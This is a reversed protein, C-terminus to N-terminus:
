HRGRYFLAVTTVLVFWLTAGILWWRSDNVLLFIVVLAVSPVYFLSLQLFAIMTRFLVSVLSSLYELIATIANVLNEYIRELISLIGELLASIGGAVRRRMKNLADILDEFFRLLNDLVTTNEGNLPMGASHGGIASSVGPPIDIRQGCTIHRKGSWRRQDRITFKLGCGPCRLWGDRGLTAQAPPHDVPFYREVHGSTGSGNCSPCVISGSKGTTSCRSCNALVLPNHNPDSSLVTERRIKLTASIM